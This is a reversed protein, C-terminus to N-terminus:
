YRNVPKLDEPAPRGPDAVPPNRLRQALGAFGLQSTRGRNAEHPNGKGFSRQRIIKPAERRMWGHFTSRWDAKRGVARNANARAWLRMDEACDDVESRQLGVKHGYAIDAADPVWESSLSKGASNREKKPSDQKIVSDTLLSPIANVEETQRTPPSVTATALVPEKNKLSKAEGGSKGNEANKLSLVRQKELDNKIRKQTLKGDEAILLARLDPAIKRWKALTMKVINALKRDDDPLYGGSRRMTMLILLYAGHQITSLHQTDAIYASISLPFEDFPKSM